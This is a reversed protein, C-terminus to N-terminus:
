RVDASRCALLAYADISRWSFGTEGIVLKAEPEPMRFVTARADLSPELPTELPAVIWAPADAATCLRDVSDSTLRPLPDTLQTAFANYDSPTALTLALLRRVRESWIMALPRSFVVSAGQMSTIWNPRGLLLWAEPGGGIWLVEGPRSAIRSSLGPLAQGREVAKQFGSRDDLAALAVFSLALGMAASAISRPGFRERLFWGLAVLPLLVACNRVMGPGVNSGPARDRLISAIASAQLGIKMAIMVGVLAWAILALGASFRITERRAMLFVALALGAAGSTVIVDDNLIWGLTLLALVIRFAPGRRHLVMACIALAATALVVTLWLMRWPQAQVVLLSAWRDGALLTAALGCAGVVLGSLLILRARGEVLTAAIVLTVAQIAIRGWSEAPWLSPFLIPSKADLVARWESDIGTFLRGFLPLGAAAATLVAAAGIAAAALWRRDEAVLALGLVAIGALGMIPHFLCAVAIAACALVRRGSALAGLGVLVGAEAFPRPVANLEAARLVETFGYYAPLVALALMIAWRGRGSALRGALYAAACFWVAAGALSLAVAAHAAGLGDVLHHLVLTYLSFSSQGDNVFMVDRGVGGPDIDALGRGVYLRADLSIGTYPRALLFLAAVILGDGAAFRLGRELWAPRSRGAEQIQVGYVSSRAHQM